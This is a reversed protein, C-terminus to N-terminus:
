DHKIYVKTIYDKHDEQSQLSFLKDLPELNVYTCGSSHRRPKQKTFNVVVESCMPLYQDYVTAGGCIVINAEANEVTLRTPFGNLLNGKRSLVLINRLHLKGCEEYTKRGMVLIKNEGLTYYKFAKFDEKSRYALKGDVGILGASDTHLIASIM